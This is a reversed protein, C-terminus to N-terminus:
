KRGNSKDFTSKTEITWSYQILQIARWNHIGLLHINLTLIEGEEISSRFFPCEIWACISAINTHTSTIKEREGNWCSTIQKKIKPMKWCFLNRYPINLVLGEFFLALCLHFLSCDNQVYNVFDANANAIIAHFQWFDCFVSSLFRELQFPVSNVLLDVFRLLDGYLM